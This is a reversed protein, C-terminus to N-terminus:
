PTAIGSGLEALLPELFAEYARWRGLSHSYIPQRVQTASATRIPRETQHFNLCRPDWELGCYAVIRRAQGELDRVLEEYQVELMAGKPLVNRWHSMLNEYARYYRGLEALDYTYTLNNGTFLKSFCSLCTDAPNRQIHIIKANPLALHIPGVFRFNDPTKNSIRRAKPALRRISALYREGVQRWQEGSNQSLTLPSYNSVGPTPPDSILAKGFDEIEGAGFIDAHSALIQEVLTTGSRPMGLIFIPLNSCNGTNDHERMVSAAFAAQMRTFFDLTAAEDFLTKQRNLNNGDILHLFSREHDGFDAYIKALAFHLYISEDASLSTKNEVLAEMTLVHREGREFRRYNTLNYYYHVKRPALEIAREIAKTAEPFRGLEAFVVGMNDYADAYDSRLYLAKEYSGLAEEFRKLNRLANARNVLAEVYNPKLALAEDYSALADEQRGLDVLVNGRNLLAESHNPKLVLAKDYSALAELPRGLERLANARNILAEVYDPKLALSAESSALGEALRKLDILAAGRNCLAETYDPKLALAKDYSAVARELQGLRAHVLGINSWAAANTPSLKLAEFYCALSEELRNLDRLINGRNLLAMSNDPRLALARDCSELAEEARDLERLVASRNSLAESFDSKFTLAKDYSALASDLQGRRAYVLGINSWAAASTPNRDLASSLYELAESNRDQQFRIVGLMHLADFHDQQVSLIALYVTEAKDLKGEKHLQVARKFTEVQNLQKDSM